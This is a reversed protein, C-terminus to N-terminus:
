LSPPFFATIMLYFHSLHTCPISPSFSFFSYMQQQHLNDLSTHSSFLLPERRRNNHKYTNIHTEREINPPSMETAGWM